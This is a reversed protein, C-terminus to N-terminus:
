RICRMVPLPTLTPGRAPWPAAVATPAMAPPLPRAAVIGIHPRAQMARLVPRHAGPFLNAGYQHKPIRWYRRVYRLEAYGPALYHWPSMEHGGWAPYWHCFSPYALGGCGPLV